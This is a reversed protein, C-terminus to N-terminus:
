STFYDNKNSKSIIQEQAHFLPMKLWPKIVAINHQAIIWSHKKFKFILATIFRMTFININNLFLNTQEVM